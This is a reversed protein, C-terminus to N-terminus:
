FGEADHIELINASFCEPCDDYVEGSFRHGCSRCKMRKQGSGGLEDQVDDSLFLYASVPNAIDLPDLERKSSAEGLVDRSGPTDYDYDNYELADDYEENLGDDYDM